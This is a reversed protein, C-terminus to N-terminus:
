LRVPQCATIIARQQGLGPQVIRPQDKGGGPPDAGPWRRRPIDPQGGVGRRQDGSEVGIIAKGRLTQGPQSRQCQGV